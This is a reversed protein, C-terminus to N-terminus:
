GATEGEIAQSAHVILWNKDGVINDHGKAFISDIHAIKTRQSSHTRMIFDGLCQMHFIKKM